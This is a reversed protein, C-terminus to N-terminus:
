ARLIFGILGSHNSIQRETPTCFTQAHFKTNLTNGSIISIINGLSSLSCLCMPRKPKIHIFRFLESLPGFSWDFENHRLYLNLSIDESYLEFFQWKAINRDDENVPDSLLVLWLICTRNM